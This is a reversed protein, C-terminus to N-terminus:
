KVFLIFYHIIFPSLLSSMLSNNLRKIKEVKYDEELADM